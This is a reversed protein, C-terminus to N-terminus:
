ESLKYLKSYKQQLYTIFYQATPSEGTAARIIERPTRTQGIHHVNTRLWNLLPKFEGEAFQSSLDGLTKDAAHYLQAAYVNGLTYTPFYGFMGGSWHVDQLVGERETAPSIGLYEKMKQRWADPLDSPSLENRFLALELEFRLMVHLNYTVEDAEVRICGPKVANVALLFDDLSVQKFKSFYEEAITKAFMWFGRSRGVMNEWLRSQSEHIGLSVFMGAPTGYHEPVLGLEYLSHGAEHLCGFVGSGLNKENYRTTIRSDGPGIGVSFPHVTEDIRGDELSYGIATVLKECLQQQFIVSFDDNFITSNVEVSSDEIQQLLGVLPQKLEVFLSELFSTTAGMEYEDLLADYPEQEFGLAEAKQKNLSILNELHPFFSEWDNKHMAKEWASEGESSARALETALNEPIKTQKDFERRWMSINSLIVADDVKNLKSNEVSSLCEEIKPDTSRQHILKALAAMQRSRHPHGNPPIYTRQDWAALEACSILYSTDVSHQRLWDYAESPTM